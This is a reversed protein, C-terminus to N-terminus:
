HTAEVPEQDSYFQGVQPARMLKCGLESFLESNDGSAIASVLAPSALANALFFSVESATAHRLSADSGIAALLEITDM